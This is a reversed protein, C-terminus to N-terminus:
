GLRLPLEQSQSPFSLIFKSIYKADKRNTEDLKSLITMICILSKYKESDNFENLDRM